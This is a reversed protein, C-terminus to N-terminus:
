GARPSSKKFYVKKSDIAEKTVGLYDINFVIPYPNDEEDVYHEMTVLFEVDDATYYEYARKAILHPPSTEETIKECSAVMKANPMSQSLLWQINETPTIRYIENEDKENLGTYSCHHPIDYIDWKLYEENGKSKSIDVVKDLINYTADGTILLNTERKFVGIHNYLRVQLVISQENKDQVDECDNSFPAHVFFQIEDGLSESKIIEGAHVIFDKVDDYTLGEEELWTTLSGPEAFVKIGYRNKLRHRAETRIIKADSGDELETDLLFAASIWLEKIKKREDSQYKETHDLYFFNSAGKTHDEHPHSFMVIEFEEINALEKELNIRRDITTGDHMNAYDFLIKKNNSLELLCTHANGLPYFTLKQSL